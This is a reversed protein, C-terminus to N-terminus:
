RVGRRALEGADGLVARMNAVIAKTLVVSTGTGIAAVAVWQGSTNRTVGMTVSVTNGLTDYTKETRERQWGRTAM